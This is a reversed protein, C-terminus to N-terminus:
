DLPKLAARDHVQVETWRGAALAAWGEALLFVWALHSLACWDLLGVETWRGAVLAAWGATVWDVHGLEAQQRVGQGATPM